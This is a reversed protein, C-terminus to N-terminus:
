TKPCESSGCAGIRSPGKVGRTRPMDFIPLKSDDAITPVPINQRQAAATRGERLTVAV